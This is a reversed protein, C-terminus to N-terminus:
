KAVVKQAPAATQIASGRGEKPVYAKAGRTTKKATIKKVAPKKVAAKVAVKKAAARKAPRPSKAMRSLRVARGAQMDFRMLRQYPIGEQEAEFKYQEIVGSPMRINIKGDKSKADFQDLLEGMTMVGKPLDYEALNAGQVFNDVEDETELVPWPKQKKVM